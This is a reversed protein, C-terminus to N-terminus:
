QKSFYLQKMNSKYCVVDAEVLMRVGGSHAQLVDIPFEFNLTESVLVSNKEVKQLSLIHNLNNLTFNDM